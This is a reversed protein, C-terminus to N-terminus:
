QQPDVLRHRHHAVGLPRERPVQAWHPEDHVVPELGSAELNVEQFRRRRTRAINENVLIRRVYWFPDSDIHIRSWNLYAKELAQQVLDEALQRDGCITHAILLRGSRELVFASFEADRESGRM